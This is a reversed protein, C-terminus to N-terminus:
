KLRSPITLTIRKLGGEEEASLASQKALSKGMEFQGGLFIVPIILSLLENEDQKRGNM